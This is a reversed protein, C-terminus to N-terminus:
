TLCQHDPNGIGSNELEVYIGFRNMGPTGNASVINRHKPEPGGILNGAAANIKVGFGGNGLPDTGNAALGDGGAPAFNPTSRNLM